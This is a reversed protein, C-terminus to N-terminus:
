AAKRRREVRREVYRRDDTGYRRNGSVAVLLAAVRKQRKIDETELHRPCSGDPFWTRFDFESLNWPWGDVLVQIEAYYRTNRPMMEKVEAAM